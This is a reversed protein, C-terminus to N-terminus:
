AAHRPRASLCPGVFSQSAPSIIWGPKPATEVVPATSLNTRDLNRREGRSPCRLAAGRLAVCARADLLDISEFDFKTSTEKAAMQRWGHVTRPRAQLASRPGSRQMHGDRDLPVAHRCMNFPGIVTLSWAGETARLRGCSAAQSLQRPKAQSPKIQSSKVRRNGM